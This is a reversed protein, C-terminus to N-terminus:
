KAAVSARIVLEPDIIRKQLPADPNEMRNLLIAAAIAGM